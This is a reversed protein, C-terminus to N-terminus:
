STTAKCMLGTLDTAHFPKKIFGILGDFESTAEEESYGSMLVVPMEPTLGRLARFTEPGAMRPMTLDLLVAHVEGEAEQYKALADIGDEALITQFGARELISQSLSRIYPEDDVVLVTGQGGRLQESVPSPTGENQASDESCPFLVTITCGKGPSSQMRIAGGHGRVIGQVAAMGLGRGTFKTTFFPDFIRSRTEADMGCGTDSVELYTYESAALEESLDFERLDEASIYRSGSSLRIEGPRGELADSSNTILNMIVQRIQSEDGRILSEGSDLELRLIAKKTISANLIELTEEVLPVLNLPSIVFQGRGSYALMQEALAAAREAATNIQKLLQAGKENGAVEAGLLDVNGIVATLLNNFDHAIGGALVGLSELKQANRMQEEIQKRELEAQKRETIDLAYGAYHTPEGAEDRTIVTYDYLWRVSGDARVIRYDQEFSDMGASAFEQVESEVRELDPAYVLDSYRIRGSLLDDASHGFIGPVNPSVYEVPWGPEARWRFVMVPGGTFLRRERRLQLELEKRDHIDKHTGAARTPKGEADRELVRGRDLIWKWTGEKTLLRHETEYFETEGALHAGLVREVEPMDDPHVLKSWSEVTCEIESLEYGLMQAWHVDFDVEGTLINWDWIGDRAGDLALMLREERKSTM